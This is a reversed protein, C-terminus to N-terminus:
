CAWWNLAVLGPSRSAPRFIPCCPSVAEAGTICLPRLKGARVHAMAPLTNSFIFDIQRRAPGAGRSAARTRCRTAQVKVLSEVNREFTRFAARGAPARLQAQRSQGPCVRRDGRAVQVGLRRAGGARQGSSILSVAVLDKDINYPVTSLLPNVAVAAPERDRLNYGDAPQKLRIWESRGAAGPKSEVIGAPGVARLAEAGFVRAM